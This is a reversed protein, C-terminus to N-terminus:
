MMPITVMMKFINKETCFMAMGGHLKAVNAISRTGYGHGRHNTVPMHDIIKVNGGYTNDVSFILMGNFECLRVDMKRKNEPLILVAKLANEIANSVMSCLETASVPIREPLRIDFTYEVKNEQAKDAFHSLLLNLMEMKCFKKPTIADINEVNELLYVKIEALDGKDALQLLYMLHHRMDHRYIKAMQQMENLNEYENEAIQIQNELLIREEIATIKKQQEKSFVILFVLYVVCVMLPMFQVVHYNGTYLIKTWVTTIYDFLFYTVPIILFAIVTAKAGDLLERIPEAGYRIIVFLTMGVSVVYLILELRYNVGVYMALKSIWAPIQCCMYAMMTCLIADLLKCDFVLTLLLILPLHTHLPYLALTMEFGVRWVCIGQLLLLILLVLMIRKKKQLVGLFATTVTVGFLLSIMYRIDILISEQM